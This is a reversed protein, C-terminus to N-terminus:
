LLNLSICKVKSFTVIYEGKYKHYYDVTQRLNLADASINRFAKNLFAIDEKVQNVSQITELKLKQLENAQYGRQLIVMESSMNVMTKNLTMLADSLETKVNETNLKLVGLEKAQRGRQLTGTVVSALFTQNIAFLATELKSLATDTRNGSVADANYLKKLEQKISAAAASVNQIESNTETEERKMNAQIKTLIEDTKNQSNLQDNSIKDLNRNLEVSVSSINKALDSKSEEQERKVDDFELLLTRYRRTLASLERDVEMRSSREHNIERQLTSVTDKLDKLEREIDQNVVSLDSGTNCNANAFLGNLVIVVFLVEM